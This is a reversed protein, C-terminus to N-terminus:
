PDVQRMCTMKVGRGQERKEKRGKIEEGGVWVCECEGVCEGVSM